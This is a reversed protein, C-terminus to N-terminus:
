RSSRLWQQSPIRRRERRSGIPARAHRNPSFHSTRALSRSNPTLAGIVGGILQEAMIQQWGNGDRISYAGIYGGPLLKLPRDIHGKFDFQTSGPAWFTEFWSPLVFDSVPVGDIDYGFEDAEPADSNEYAVLLSLEEIFVTLNITPDGLIELTEHSGTRQWPTGNTIATKAFIKGIPLGESSLDHYGLAGAQDANDLIPMQWHGPACREGTPIFHLRADIGWSPAFDDSVQKQFAAVAKAAEPDDVVTSLNPYDIDIM